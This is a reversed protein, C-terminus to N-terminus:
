MLRGLKVRRRLRQDDSMRAHDSNPDPQRRNKLRGSHKRRESGNWDYGPAPAPPPSALQNRLEKRGLYGVLPFFKNGPFAGEALDLMDPDRERNAIEAKFVEYIRRIRRGAETERGRENGVINVDWWDAQQQAAFNDISKLRQITERYQSLVWARIALRPLASQLDEVLNANPRGMFWAVWSSFLANSLTASGFGSFGAMAVDPLTPLHDGFFRFILRLVFLGILTHLITTGLVFPYLRRTAALLYGRSDRNCGAYIALCHTLLASTFVVVTSALTVPAVTIANM